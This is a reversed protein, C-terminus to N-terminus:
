ADPVGEPLFGFYSRINMTQGTNYLINAIWQIVTMPITFRQANATLLDPNKLLGLGDLARLSIVYPPDMLPVNNDEVAIFGQFIFSTYVEDKYVTIRVDQDHEAIFDSLRITDTTDNVWINIIAELGNIPNFKNEDGTVSRIVLPSNAATIPTVTGVYDLYDFFMEYFENLENSWQMKFKTGYM